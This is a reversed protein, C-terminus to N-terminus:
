LNQGSKKMEEVLDKSECVFNLGCGDALYRLAGMKMFQKVFDAPLESSFNFGDTTYRRTPNCAPVKECDFLYVEDFGFFTKNDAFIEEISPWLLIGNGLMKYQWKKNQIYQIWDNLQSLKENSDLCTIFLHQNEFFRPCYKYIKSITLDVFGFYFNNIRKFQM